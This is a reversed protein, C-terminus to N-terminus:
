TDSEVNGYTDNFSLRVSGDSEVILDSDVGQVHVSGSDDEVTATEGTNRIEISDSSDQTYAFSVAFMALVILGRM